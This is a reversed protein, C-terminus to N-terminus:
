KILLMKKTESYAGAQLTYYYVGSPMERADFTASHSGANQIENVLRAVRKGLINYVDLTVYGSKLISYSIKTSPNFPNPYNQQLAFSEAEFTEAVNTVPKYEFAGMDPAAGNYPLGVNVGKDIFQSTASLRFLGNDPLSGDSNRPALALSTDVSVFDSAKPTLGLDWSNSAVDANAISDVGSMSIDNKITHKGTTISVQFMFNGGKNRFALCNIITQGAANNNQDFGKGGKYGTDDFAVCNRVYHAAAIYNGGVKFGNGNGAVSGTHWIDVGNRFAWCSDIEVGQTAMWLDWGDDSNNYSRCGVFKNGTGINWKCAFGDANGGVPSDFNQYSDCNIILNNGPNVTSSSSGMHLGTNGNGHITCQEIINNSSKILIGNHSGGTQEIGKLYIYSGTLVVCDSGGSFIVKEGPYAWIKIYNNASGSASITMSAYTGARLYVTGGAGAATIGKSVTKFPKDITGTNSDNGSNVSVYYISQAFTFSTFLALICFISRLYLKM